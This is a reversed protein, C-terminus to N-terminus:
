AAGDRALAREIAELLAAPDTNKAVFGTAAALEARERCGPCSTNMVVALDPCRNRIARLVDAGSPNMQVDLVVADPPQGADLRILAASGDDFATVEHGAEALAHQYLELWQKQDDVLWIRAM